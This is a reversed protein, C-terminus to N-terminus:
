FDPIALLGVNAIQTHHSWRSIGHGRKCEFVYLTGSAANHAFCDLKFTEGGYNVATQREATWNPVHNIASVLAKEILTGHRKKISDVASVLRSMEPASLLLPDIEMKSAEREADTVLALGLRRWEIAESYALDLCM